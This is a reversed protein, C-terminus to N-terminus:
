CFGNFQDSTLCSLRKDKAKPWTMYAYLQICTVSTLPDIKLRLLHKYTILRVRRVLRIYESDGFM